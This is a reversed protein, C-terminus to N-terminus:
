TTYIGAYATHADQQYCDYYCIQTGVYPCLSQIPSVECITVNRILFSGDYVTSFAYYYEHM